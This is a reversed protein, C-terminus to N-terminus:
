VEVPSYSVHCPAYNREVLVKAGNEKQLLDRIFCSSWVRCRTGVPSAVAIRGTAPEFGIVTIPLSATRAM